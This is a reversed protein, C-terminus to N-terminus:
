KKSCIIQYDSRSIARCGSRMGAGWKQKNSPLFSLVNLLLRIDVPKEFYEVTSFHISSVSQDTLLELNEIQAGRKSPMLSKVEIRAVVHKSHPHNGAIYILCKDGPKIKTRHPTGMFLPWVQQSLRMQAISFAGVRKGNINEADTTVLVYYREPEKKPSLPAPLNM